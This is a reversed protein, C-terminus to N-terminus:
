ADYICRGYLHDYEHQFVRAEFGNLKKSVQNGARNTYCVAIEVNRAVQIYDRDPFSLCGERGTEMKKSYGVIAPNIVVNMHSIATIFFQLNIGVQPAALGVGKRGDRKRRMIKRM